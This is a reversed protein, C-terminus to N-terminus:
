SDNVDTSSNKERRSKIDKLAQQAAAAKAGRVTIGTGIYSSLATVTVRVQVKHDITDEIREFIVRGPELEMLERMPSLPIDKSYSDITSKM